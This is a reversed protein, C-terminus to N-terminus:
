SLLSPRPIEEMLPVFSSSFSHPSEPAFMIENNHHSLFNDELRPTHYDGSNMSFLVSWFLYEIIVYLHRDIPEASPLWCCKKKLKLITLIPNCCFANIDSKKSSKLHGWLQNKERWAVLKALAHAYSCQEILDFCKVWFVSCKTQSQHNVLIARERM